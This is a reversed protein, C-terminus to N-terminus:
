WSQKDLWDSLWMVGGCVTLVPNSFVAGAVTVFLSAGDQMDFKVKGGEISLLSTEDLMTITENQSM